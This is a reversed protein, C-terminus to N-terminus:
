REGTTGLRQAMTIGFRISRSGLGHRFSDWVVSERVVSERVVSERVVSDWVVSERVVSHDAPIPGVGSYATSCITPQGCKSHDATIPRASGSGFAVDIKRRM